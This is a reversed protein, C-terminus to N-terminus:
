MSRRRAVVAAIALGTLVLLLMSPEPVNAVNAIDANFSVGVSPGSVDTPSFLEFQVTSAGGALPLLDADYFIVSLVNVLDSPSTLFDGDFALDFSFMGGFDAMFSLYSPGVAPLTFTGPVTESWDHSVIDDIPGFAGQLNSLTATAGPAGLLSAFDFDVYGSTGSAIATNVTVHYSPIVGAQAAISCAALVLAALAQRITTSFNFM